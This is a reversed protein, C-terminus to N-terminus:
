PQPTLTPTPPPHPNLTPTPTIILNLPTPTTTRPYEVNATKTKTTKSKTTGIANLNCFLVLSLFRSSLPRGPVVRSPIPPSPFPLPSPCLASVLAETGVDVDDFMFGNLTLDTDEVAGPYVGGAALALASVEPSTPLTITPADNQPTITIGITAEASAGDYDTVSLSLTDSGSWDLGGVYVLSALADNLAKLSGRASLTVGEAEAGGESQDHLWQLGASTGVSITGHDVSLSLSLTAGGIGHIADYADVDVISLSSGVSLPTDSPPHRIPPLHAPPARRTAPM